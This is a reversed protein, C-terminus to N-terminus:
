QLKLHERLFALRDERIEDLIMAHETKYTKLTKPDLAAAFYDEYDAQPTYFDETGFQFLVPANVQSIFRTPALEDMKAKYDALGARDEPVGFLMWQNFNSAGAILVYADPRQDVAGMLTGYMAGFDHGVYAVRESDVQVQALLVDLGRRLEIVQRSADDYDSELTRGQQYWTWESWMTEPLLAVIGDQEAMNVAEDLFETRNSTPNEPEYWHVYLVGPFKGEGAPLVLYAKIPKGTVPSPYAIDKVTVSGRQESSVEEIALPASADYEFMAIVEEPLAEQASGPVPLVLMGLLLLLLAKKM